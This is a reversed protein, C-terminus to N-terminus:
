VYADKRKTGETLAFDMFQTFTPTVSAIGTDLLDLIQKDELNRLGMLKNLKQWLFIWNNKNCLDHSNILAFYETLTQETKSEDIGFFEGVVKALANKDVKETADVIKTYIDSQKQLLLIDVASEIFNHAKRLGLKGDDGYYQSTKKVLEKNNIYAYGKGGNYDFHSFDDLINHAIVGKALSLYDSHHKEIYDKFRKAAERGHMGSKDWDIIKLVAIDPLFSGTLLLKDDSGFIKGAVYAHANYFM